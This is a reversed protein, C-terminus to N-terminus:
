FHFISFTLLIKNVSHFILLTLIIKNATYFISRSLIKKNVNVYHIILLTLVIKNVSNIILLTLVEKNVANFTLLTLFAQDQHQHHAPTTRGPDQHHAPHCGDSCVCAGEDDDSFWLQANSVSFYYLHKGSVTLVCQKATIHFAVFKPRLVKYTRRLLQRRHGARGSLIAIQIRM